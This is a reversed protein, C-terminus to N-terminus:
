AHNRASSPKGGQIPLMGGELSVKRDTLTVLNIVLLVTIVADLGIIVTTQHFELATDGLRAM